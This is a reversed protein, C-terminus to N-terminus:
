NVEGKTKWARARVAAHRIHCNDAVDIFGTDITIELNPVAPVLYVYGKSEAIYSYM